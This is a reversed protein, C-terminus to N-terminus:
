IARRRAIGRKVTMTVKFGQGSILFAFFDPESAKPLRWGSPCLADGAGFEYLGGYHSCNVPDDYLCRRKNDNNVSATM